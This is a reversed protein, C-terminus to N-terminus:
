EYRIGCLIFCTTSPAPSCLAPRMRHSSLPPVSSCRILLILSVTLDILEQKVNSRVFLTFWSEFTSTSTLFSSIIALSFCTCHLFQCSFVTFFTPTENILLLKMSHYLIPCFQQTSISSLAKTSSTM